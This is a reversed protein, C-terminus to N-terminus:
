FKIMNCIIFKFTLNDVKDGHDLNKFNKIQINCINKPLYDFLFQKISMNLLSYNEPKIDLEYNKYLYMWYKRKFLILVLKM